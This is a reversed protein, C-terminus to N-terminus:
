SIGADRLRASMLTPNHEIRHMLLGAVYSDLVAAVLSDDAGLGHLHRGCQDWAGALLSPIQGQAVQIRTHLTLPDNNPFAKRVSPTLLRNNARELARLVMSNAAVHVASPAATISAILDGSDPQNQTATPRTDPAGQGPPKAQIGRQPAPPPPPGNPDMEVAPPLVNPIDVGVYERVPDAAFYTPDRKIVEQVFRKGSEEDSPADVERLNFSRRVSEASVVGKEYLNLMDTAQNASSALPAVDYWYTFRKPDKGLAKLAPELYATTLADSIRGMLPMISKVIFEEGAFWVGWHNMERSGIQIEVPVNIGVALNQIEMEEMKSLADSLVSEFKIPQIGKMAELEALPMPWIIPAIQAATGKGELNSTMVEFLQQYIDDISVSEDDGKPIALSEPVPLVVANAIRSNFQSRKYLQIERMRHLCDLLARVPSDALLPRRPHPTHVRVIIDRGPNLTERVAHGITVIVNKGQRRVESPAVVMWKDTYAPRASLGILYCEGAVTLSEGLGRLIEAKAAPGGFLNDALAAVENDDTVEQQRVGNEDVRAVYIRVLSCANGVYDVANHLQSNTDYFEWALKQWGEDSFRYGRWAEDSLTMRVASAILSLPIPKREPEVTKSFLAM